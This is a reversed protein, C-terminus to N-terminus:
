LWSSRMWSCISTLSIASQIQRTGVYMYISANASLILTCTIDNQRMCSISVFNLKSPMTQVQFIAELQFIHTQLVWCIVFHLFFIAIIYYWTHRTTIIDYWPTDPSEWRSKLLCECLVASTHFIDMFCRCDNGALHYLLFETQSQRGPWSRQLKTTYCYRIGSPNLLKNPSQLGRDSPRPIMVEEINQKTWVTWPIHVFALVSQTCGTLANPQNHKM